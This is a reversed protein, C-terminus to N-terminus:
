KEEKRKMVRRPIISAAFAYMYFTGLPDKIQDILKLPDYDPNKEENVGLISALAGLMSGGQELVNQLPGGCGTCPM